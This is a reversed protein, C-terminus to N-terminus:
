PAPAPSPIGHRGPSANRRTQFSRAPQAPELAADRLMSVSLGAVAAVLTAALAASWM